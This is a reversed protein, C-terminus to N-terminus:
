NKRVNSSVRSHIGNIRLADNLKNLSLNATDSIAQKIEDITDKSASGEITIPANIVLEISQNTQTPQAAMSKNLGAFSNKITDLVQLQSAIRMQDERNFVLEDDTLLRYVEHQKTNAGDGTFGTALGSHHTPVSQGQGANAGINGTYDTDEVAIIGGTVNVDIGKELTTVISEIDPGYKDVLGNLGSIAKEVTSKLGDGHEGNFGILRSLLNNTERQEITDMVVELVASKNNLWDEIAKVAGDIIDGFLEAQSDLGEETKSITEERQAKAQERMLQDREKELEALEAKAARSDDLRLVEIRANIDSLDRAYDDMEEQYALEDETLKLSKKKADIIDNYADKQDNLADIKDQAEQRVMDEVLDIITKLDDQEEEYADKKADSYDRLYKIRLDHYDKESIMGQNYYEELLNLINNYEDGEAWKWMDGYAVQKEADTLTDYLGSKRDEILQEMKDYDNDIRDLIADRENENADERDDAFAKGKLYKNQAANIKKYYEEISIEGKELQKELADSEKDYADRSADAKDQQWQRYEELYGKRAKKNKVYYKKGLADLKKYYSAESIQGMELKYDLAEKEREYADIRAQKQKELAERNEETNKKLAKKYKKYLAQLKKYYTVESIYGMELQHDLKAVGKDYNKITIKKKGKKGKNNSSISRIITGKAAASGFTEHGAALSGFNYKHLPITDGLIRRTEDAPYVVANGPLNVMEPGYQGVLYSIGKSPEWVLETGLEGTLTLGGKGKPGLQGRIGGNSMSPYNSQIRRNSTGIAVSGDNKNGNKGTSGKGTKAQAGKTESVKVTPTFIKKGLAILKEEIKKIKETAKDLIKIQPYVTTGDLGNLFKSFAEAEEDGVLSCIVDSRVEEPLDNLYDALENADGTEKYKIVANVIHSRTSDDLGEINSLASMVENAGTLQAKVKIVIESQALEDLETYQELIYDLTSDADGIDGINVGDQELKKLILALEDASINMTHFKEITSDLDLKDGDLTGLGSLTTKLTNADSEADIITVDVEKLDNILGGLDAGTLGSQGQLEAHGMYLQGDSGKLAKDQEKAANKIANKVEDVNYFDVNAFQRASDIMATLTESSVGLKRAVEAINERPIDFTIGNATDAVQGIIEGFENKINGEGDGIALLKEAFLVAGDAGGKLLPKIEALKQKVTDINYGAEKLASTGLIQEAGQWFAISGNGLNNKGDYMTDYIEKYNEIGTYYDGGSLASDFDEKASRAASILDDFNGIANAISEENAAVFDRMSIAQNKYFAALTPNASAYKNALNDLADAQENLAKNAQDADDQTKDSDLFKDKAEQAKNYITRFGNANSTYANTIQKSLIDADAKMQTVDEGSYAIEKLGEKYSERMAEPIRSFSSAGTEDLKSVYALLYDTIPQLSDNYADRYSRLETFSSTLDSIKIDQDKGKSNKANIEFDRMIRDSQMILSDLQKLTAQEAEFDLGMYNALLSSGGGSLEGYTSRTQLGAFLDTIERASERMGKMAESANVWAGKYIDKGSANSTYADIAKQKYEEQLAIGAEIASNRDLIANGEATYGQVLEPSISALQNAIENYRDFEDATLSINKGSSDVGKALKNYEDALSEINKTNETTKSIEDNYKNIREQMNELKADATIGHKDDIQQLGSIVKSIFFTIALEAGINKFMAVTSASFGKFSKTAKENLNIQKKQEKNWKKVDEINTKESRGLDRIANSCDQTVEARRLSATTADIDDNILDRNIKAVEVLAKRDKQLSLMANNRYSEAEIAKAQKGRAVVQTVNGAKDIKEITKFILETVECCIILRNNSVM